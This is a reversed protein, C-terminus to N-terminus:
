PLNYLDELKDELFKLGNQVTEQLGEDDEGCVAARELWNRAEWDDQEVGEGSMYCLGLAVQAWAHGQDAAKQYWEVAKRYDKDVGEGNYYCDGLSHQADADGQNAAKRYWEAAKRYDEAVGEGNSYLAGLLWQAESTGQKAAKQLWEVAKQYDQEVGDGSCYCAGLNYQAPAYDQEAAKRFWEIAEGYDQEVGEGNYYCSGLNDQAVAHGQEAAKRYWEVAKRYDKSIGTGENYCKGLYNQAEALGQDAAKRYWDVAKRYDQAVGEGDYFLYGLHWQAWAYGQEAAKRWWEAAKRYDKEVGHGSYYCGGLHFQGPAYGQEASKRYWEAAKRYDQEVGQGGSYYSGGLHYQAPAYGQESGKREWDLVDRYNREVIIGVDSRWLVSKSVASDDHLKVFLLCPNNGDCLKKAMDSNCQVAMKKNPSLINKLVTEAYQFPNIVVSLKGTELGSESSDVIGIGFPLLPMSSIRADCNEDNEYFFKDWYIPQVAIVDDGAQLYVQSYDCCVKDEHVKLKVMLEGDIVQDSTVGITYFANVPSFQIDPNHDIHHVLFNVDTYGDKRRTDLIACGIYVPDMAAIRHEFDKQTEFDGRSLSYKMQRLEEPTQIADALSLPDMCPSKYQADDATPGDLKGVEALYRRVNSVDDLSFQEVGYTKGRQLGYALTLILLQDLCEQIRSATKGDGDQNILRRFAHFRRSTDRDLLEQEELESIGRFLERNRVGLDRLMSEMAQRIQMMALNYEAAQEARVCIEYLGPFDAELFHFRSATM